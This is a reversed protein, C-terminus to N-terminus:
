ASVRSSTSSLRDQLAGALLTLAALDVRLHRALRVLLSATPVGREGELQSLYSRSCGVLVGLEDQTLGLRDRASELFPGFTM